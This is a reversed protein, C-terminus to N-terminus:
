YGVRIIAIAFIANETALLTVLTSANCKQRSKHLLLVIIAIETQPFFHEVRNFRIEM